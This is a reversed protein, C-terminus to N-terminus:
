KKKKAEEKKTNYIVGLRSRANASAFSDPYNTILLRYIAEAEDLNGNKEEKYALNFLDDLFQHYREKEKKLNEIEYADNAHAHKMEYIDKTQLDYM